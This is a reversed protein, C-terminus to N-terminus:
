DCITKFALPLMQILDSAKMAEEGYNCRAHDGAKGHLFVALCAAKEPNKWRALLGTMLGLLVDGSGAKAMGPNGVTNFFLNGEPTSISTISTKLVIYCGLEKSKSIQTQIRDCNRAHLGFLRDFEGPHPTLISSKPLKELLAPFASLINLADADLILHHPQREIMINLWKVSTARTSFGCGMGIADYKSFSTSDPMIDIARTMIEPNASVAISNIESRSFLTVWGAGSRSAAGSSLVAAGATEKDGAILAAHGYNGKHSVRNRGKVFSRALSEDISQYKSIPQFKVSLGIEIVCYEEMWAQNEELFFPLKPSQLTYVKSAKIALTTPWLNILMGSPVDVALVKFSMSNLSQILEELKGDIPRNLGTGFLADIIIGDKRLGLITIENFPLIEINGLAIVKKRMNLFDPSTNNGESSLEIIKVNYFSNRLHRAIVMGDGGNNGTGCLVYIPQDTNPIDKVMENFVAQGAREMLELSTTNQENITAIDWEKIQKADLLYM